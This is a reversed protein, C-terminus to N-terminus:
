DSGLAPLQNAVYTLVAVLVGLAPAVQSPLGLAASSGAVITLAAAVELIHITHALRNSGSRPATQSDM